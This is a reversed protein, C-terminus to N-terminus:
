CSTELKSGQTERLFEAYGQRLSSSAATSTTTSAPTALQYQSVLGPRSTKSSSMLKGMSGAELVQSAEQTLPPAITPLPPAPRRFDQVVNVIPAVQHNRTSSLLPSQIDETEEGGLYGISVASTSVFSDSLVLTHAGVPPTVKRSLLWKLQIDLNHRTM